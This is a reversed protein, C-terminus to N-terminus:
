LLCNRWGRGRRPQGVAKGALCCGWPEGRTEPYNVAIKILISCSWEFVKLQSFPFLSVFFILHTIHYKHDYQSGEKWSSCYQQWKGNTLSKISCKNKLLSRAYSLFTCYLSFKWNRVWIARVCITRPTEPMIPEAAHLATFQFFFM